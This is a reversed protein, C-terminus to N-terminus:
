LDNAKYIRNDKLLFVRFALEQGCIPCVIELLTPRLTPEEEILIDCIIGIGTRM